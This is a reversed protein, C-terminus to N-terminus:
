LPGGGCAGAPAPHFLPGEERELPQVGLQAADPEVIGGAGVGVAVNRDGDCVGAEEALAASGVSNTSGVGAHGAGVSGTATGLTVTETAIWLLGLHRAQHGASLMALVVLLLAVFV